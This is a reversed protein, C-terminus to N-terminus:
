YLTRIRSYVTLLSNRKKGKKQMNFYIYIGDYIYEEAEVVVTAAIWVVARGPINM